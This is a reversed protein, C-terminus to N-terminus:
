LRDSDEVCRKILAKRAPFSAFPTIRLGVNNLQFISFSVMERLNKWNEVDHPTYPLNLDESIIAINFSM